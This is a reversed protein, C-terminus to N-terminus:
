FSRTRNMGDGKKLFEDFAQKWASAHLKATGTIVGDLDFLVADFNERTISYGM